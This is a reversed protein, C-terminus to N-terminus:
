RIEIADPHNLRANFDDLVMREEADTRRIDFLDVGEVPHGISRPKADRMQVVIEYLEPSFSAHERHSSINQQHGKKKALTGSSPVPWLTPKRLEPNGDRDTEDRRAHEFEVESVGLNEPDEQVDTREDHGKDLPRPRRIFPRRGKNRQRTRLRQPM